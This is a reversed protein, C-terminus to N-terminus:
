KFIISNIPDGPSLQARRAAQLLSAGVSKNVSQNLLRLSQEASGGIVLDVPHDANYMSLDLTRGYRREFRAAVDKRYAKQLSEIRIGDTGATYSLEGRVAARQISSEKRAFAKQLYVLENASLSPDSLITPRSAILDTGIRDAGGVKPAVVYQANAPSLANAAAENLAAREAAAAAQTAQRARIATKIGPGAFQLGEGILGLSAGIAGDALADNVSYHTGDIASYTYGTAVGFGANSAASLTVFNMLTSSTFVTSTELFGTAVTLGTGGAIATGAWAAGAGGISAVALKLAYRDIESNIRQGVELDHANRLAVGETYDRYFEAKQEAISATAYDEKQEQRGFTARMGNQTERQGYVMKLIKGNADQFDVGAKDYQVLGYFENPVGRFNIGIKGRGGATPLFFYGNRDTLYQGRAVGAPLPKAQVIIDSGKSEIDNVLLPATNAAKGKGNFLALVDTQGLTIGSPNVNAAPDGGSAPQARLRGANRGSGTIGRAVINGITSGITDPLAAILNDGFDTGNILSRTAANAIDGAVGSILQGASGNVGKLGGAWSSVGGGAGAAAIGAWDFKKQLGTAVAVGQTITSGLAGRAAGAAFGAGKIVAGLGGGIGGSLASLAVGKFSFKSQIGTLVGVGQSVISGVAAGVAGFTALGLATASIAVTGGALTATGGLAVVIGQGLTLGPAAAAAAAGATLVTVAIAIIALLIKGFAGCAPKKPPKPATPSTDGLAESADYPKFTNSNHTSKTVGAPLMLSQGESLSANASLGNAEALRYWLNGDGWLAAAIGALTDGTRVTYTGAGSGQDFSNTQDISQAFDAYFSWGTNTGNRFLGATQDNTETSAVSRATVSAGYSVDSTGNNGIMGM